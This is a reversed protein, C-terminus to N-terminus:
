KGCMSRSVMKTGNFVAAKETGKGGRKRDTGRLSKRLRGRAKYCDSTWWGPQQEGKRKCTEQVPKASDVMQKLRTWCEQVTETDRREWERGELRQKYGVVGEEM